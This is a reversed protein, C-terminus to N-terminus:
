GEGSEGDEEEGDAAIASSVDDAVGVEAKGDDLRNSPATSATPVYARTGFRTLLVAGLGIAGVLVWMVGGIFSWLGISLLGLLFALTFSGIASQLTPTWEQNFAVMMRRGVDGGMVVVGFLVGIMLALSLLLILPITLPILVVTVSLLSLMIVAAVFVVVSLLGFGGSLITNEEITNRVILAHRPLILGALVAVASFILARAIVSFFSIVPQLSRVFRDFPTDVRNPPNIEPIEPIEISPEPISPVELEPINETIIQGFIRAGEDRRVVTAPAILDKRVLATETLSVVGGIAVLNGGVEGSATVNGGFILVDGTIESEEELTVVGGFVILNGELVEGSDLRFTGFFVVEDDMSPAFEYSAAATGSFLLSIISVTLVVLLFRKNMKM